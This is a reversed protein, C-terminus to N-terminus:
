GSFWKKAAASLADVNTNYNFRQAGSGSGSAGSQGGVGQQQSFGYAPAPYMAKNASSSSHFAPSDARLPTGSVNQRFGSRSSTRAINSLNSSMGMSGMGFNSSGVGPGITDYFGLTPTNMTNSMNSWQNLPSQSMTSSYTNQQQFGSGQTSAMSSFHNYTGAPPAVGSSGLANLYASNQLSSQPVVPPGLIKDLGIARLTEVKKPPPAAGRLAKLAAEKKPDIILSSPKNHNPFFIEDDEECFGRAAEPFSPKIKKREALEAAEAFQEPTMYPVMKIPTDAEDGLSKVTEEDNGSDSYDPDDVSVWVPFDRQEFPIHGLPFAKHMREDGGMQQYKGWNREPDQPRSKDYGGKKKFALEKMPQGGNGLYNRYTTFVDSKKADDSQEGKTSKMEAEKQDNILKLAFAIESSSIGLPNGTEKFKHQIDAIMATDGSLDM